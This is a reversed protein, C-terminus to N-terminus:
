SARMSLVRSMKDLVAKEGYIGRQLAVMNLSRDKVLVARIEEEHTGAILHATLGHVGVDVVKVAGANARKEGTDVGHPRVVRALDPFGVPM